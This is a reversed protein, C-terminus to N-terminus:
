SSPICTWVLLYYDSHTSKTLGESITNPVIDMTVAEGAAKVMLANKTSVNGKNSKQITTIKCDDCFDDKTFNLKTDLWLNNESAHLLIPISRHGLRRHLTTSDVLKRKVRVTHAQLIGDDEDTESYPPNVKYIKSINTVRDYM